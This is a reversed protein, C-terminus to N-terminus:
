RVWDLGCLKRLIRVWDLGIWDLGHISGIWTWSQVIYTRGDTRGHRLHLNVSYVSDLFCADTKNKHNSVTNNVSRLYM